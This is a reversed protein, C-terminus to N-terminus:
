DTRTSSTAPNDSAMASSISREFEDQEHDVGRVSVTAREYDAKQKAALEEATAPRYPLPPAPKAAPPAELRILVENMITFNKGDHIKAFQPDALLEAWEEANLRIVTRRPLAAFKAAQEIYGTLTLLRAFM